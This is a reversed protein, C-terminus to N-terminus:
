RPTGNKTAASWALMRNAELIDQLSCGHGPLNKEQVNVTLAGRCVAIMEEM